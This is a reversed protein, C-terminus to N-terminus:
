PELRVQSLPTSGTQFRAGLPQVIIRPTGQGAIMRPLLHLVKLYKKSLRDVAPLPSHLADIPVDFELSPSGDRVLTAPLQSVGAERAAVSRHVGDLIYYQPEDM